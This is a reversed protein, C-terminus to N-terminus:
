TQQTKNWKEVEWILKNALCLSGPCCSQARIAMMQRNDSQPCWDRGRSEAPSSQKVAGAAWWCSVEENRGGAAWAAGSWCKSFHPFRSPFYVNGVAPSLRTHADFSLCLWTPTPSEEWPLLSLALPFPRLNHWTLTLNSISSFKQVSLTTLCQFLQGPDHPLWYGQFPEFVQPYSNTSSRSTNPEHASEIESPKELRFLGPNQKYVTTERLKDGWWKWKEKELKAFLSKWVNEWLGCSYFQWVLGPSAFEFWCMVESASSCNCIGGTGAFGLFEKEDQKYKTLLM